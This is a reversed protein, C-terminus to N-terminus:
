CRLYSGLIECAAAADGDIRKAIDPQRKGTATTYREDQFVVKMGMDQLTDAIERVYEVQSGETGSPLLPLGVVMCDISREAFLKKVHEILQKETRHEITDLPLPVGTADDFFAVGTRRKGIDLALYRM